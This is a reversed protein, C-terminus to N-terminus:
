NRNGPQGVPQLLALSGEPWETESRGRFKLTIAKIKASKTVRIHLSGRLMTTTQNALESQDFGQLFLLPEALAISVAIGNGSAIPKEDGISDPLSTTSDNSKASLGSGTRVSDVLSPRHIAGGAPGGVSNGRSHGYRAGDGFAM